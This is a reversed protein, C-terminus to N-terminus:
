KQLHLNLYYYANIINNHITTYYYNSNKLPVEVKIHNLSKISLTYKDNGNIPNFYIIKQEISDPSSKAGIKYKYFNHIFLDHIEKLFDNFSYSNYKFYDDYSEFNNMSNVENKYRYIMRYNKQKKNYHNIYM